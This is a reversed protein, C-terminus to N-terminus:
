RFYPEGSSTIPTHEYRYGHKSISNNTKAPTLHQPRVAPTRQLHNSKSTQHSMDNHSERLGSPDNFSSERRKGASRHKESMKPHFYTSSTLGKHGTAQEKIISSRLGGRERTTDETHQPIGSCNKSRELCQMAKRLLDDAKQLLPEAKTQETKERLPSIQEVREYSIDRQHKSARNSSNERNLTRNFSSDRSPTLRVRLVGVTPERSQSHEDQSEGIYSTSTRNHMNRPNHQNKQLRLLAEHSRLLDRQPTGPQSQAIPPKHRTWDPQNSSLNNGKAQVTGTAYFPNKEQELSQKQNGCQRRNDNGSTQTKTSDTWPSCSFQDAYMYGSGSRRQM